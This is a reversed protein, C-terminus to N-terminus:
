YSYTFVVPIRASLEERGATLRSTDATNTRTELRVCGPPVSCLDAGDVEANNM